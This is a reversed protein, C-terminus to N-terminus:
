ARRTRKAKSKTSTTRASTAPKAAPRPAPKAARKRTSASKAQSATARVTTARTRATPTTVYREVEPESVSTRSQRARSPSKGANTLTTRGAKTDLLKVAEDLTLSEIKDRDPLTANVGGHKVYPGYRGAHLEVAAGDRPHKGVIRVPAGGRQPRGKKSPDKAEFEFGVSGEKQKVLFASFPRRTRASVFQLLDTKGTTLLKEMQAREIPRQLIMRGSRFDCTRDPGVARECVYVNPTEFVRNGCKPCPGLPMQSSFDPAEADDDDPRPGFDFEVENADTMRLKASFPRGLRSRFGDLTGVERERLLTEAEPPELQRGGMIKWFAFDCAPNICQFKRYKEHVEGGCKPCPTALTAFDGPITDSEYNKAQAVIHKTMKVIDRMFERRALKGHEMQALRYEWEATLEPSFLEPIGLGHLLTMLSFAKATPILEKGERHIYREQILGEIIQARTAPTGLGKERMAERLEDDEILKGAGEMASLLTAESFRPPPRTTLSVVDVKETAVKENPKVPALTPEDGQAEKGYVALWGPNVLVKGESKFPETEVRTIRTTVLYEAAPYFVALFRKVVLDYLKAEIESLHKPRSLTPIIAFHDSIKANDFIRRNPQVWKQKLIQRAFGGYANSEGLAELTARVTPLYDEPLARSDTRPYTLVKHKEYLSQALSLTTRASFGFRGNAERQLSTLDYLLPAIQTSPKSEETVFGPRGECKAALARADREHWIREARLDPDDDKKKFKEDFWRGTYEGGAARFTGVVEWYDRPVFGRIKEEREVLIALTPTQVRGVTTLQFGGAKSNFATMARTGNIGVLWDSESRCVAADALPLMAEDSRLEGFGDRIATPTMSQLWLRRVPKASNAYQVVNRFILEGERGADCANILAGVDKRKMLKLLVKLRNQSKEIPKLEFKSPIAPLRAFTWKGRKVDEEEPMGLELLHGVASSLVYRDSEYYDDHRTFGGLARAIDAAVSPKEAIILSKNV